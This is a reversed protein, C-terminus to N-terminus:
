SWLLSKLRLAWQRLDGAALWIALNAGAWGAAAGGAEAAAALGSAAGCGSTGQVV